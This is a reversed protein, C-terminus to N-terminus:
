IVEVGKPGYKDRCAEIIIDSMGAFRGTSILRKMEEVVHRDAHPFYVSINQGRKRDKPDLKRRGM